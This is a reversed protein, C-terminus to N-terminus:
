MRVNSGQFHFVRQNHTTITFASEEEGDIGLVAGQTFAHWLVKRESCSIIM